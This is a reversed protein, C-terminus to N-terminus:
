ADDQAIQLAEQLAKEAQPQWADWCANCLAFEDNSDIVTLGQLPGADAAWRADHLADRERNTTLELRKIWEAASDCCSEDGCTRCIDCVWQAKNRVRRWKIM